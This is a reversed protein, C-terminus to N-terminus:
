DHQAVQRQRQNLSVVEIVLNLIAGNQHLYSWLDNLSMPLQILYRSGIRTIRRKSVPITKVQTIFQTAM